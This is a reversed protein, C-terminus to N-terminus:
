LAGQHKYHTSPLLTKLFQSFESKGIIHNLADYNYVVNAYCETYRMIFKNWVCDM